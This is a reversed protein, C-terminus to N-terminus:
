EHWVLHEKGYSVDHIIIIRPIIIVAYMNRSQILWDMWGDMWWGVLWDFLWDILRNFSEREREQVRRKQSSICLCSCIMLSIRNRWLFIEFRNYYVYSCRWISFRFVFSSLIWLWRWPNSVENVIQLARSLVDKMKECEKRKEAISDSEKMLDNALNESFLM